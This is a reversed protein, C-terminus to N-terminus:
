KQQMAQQKRHEEDIKKVYEEFKPKQEDTLFARIKERGEQRLADVDANTKDRVGKIQTQTMAIVADAKQAQEQTLGVEATMEAVKKARKDADSMQPYPPKGAAYSSHAFSYGFVGGTAVGLIFVLALWFVAKQRVEPTM